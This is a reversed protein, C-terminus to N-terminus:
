KSLIYTKGNYTIKTEDENVYMPTEPYIDEEEQKLTYGEKKIEELTFCDGSAIKFDNLCSLFYVEGCVGLAKREGGNKSLVVDGEQLDDITRLPFILSTVYELGDSYEENKRLFFWSYKYSFRDEAHGGDKVNQCIYVDESKNISIKADDIKVGDIECTVRQGHKFRSYPITKM